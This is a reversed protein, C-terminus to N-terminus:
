KCVYICIQFVLICACTDTVLEKGLGKYKYQCWTKALYCGYGHSRKRCSCTFSKNWVTTFLVTGDCMLMM